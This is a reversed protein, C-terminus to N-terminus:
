ESLVTSNGYNKEDHNLQTHTHYISIQQSSRIRTIGTTGKRSFVLKHPKAEQKDMLCSGGENRSTWHNNQNDLVLPCTSIIFSTACPACELKCCSCKQSWLNEFYVRIIIEWKSPPFLVGLSFNLM